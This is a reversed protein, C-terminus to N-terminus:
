QRAPGSGPRKQMIKADPLMEAVGGGMGPFQPQMDPRAWKIEMIPNHTSQLLVYHETTTSWVGDQRSGKDPDQRSGIPAGPGLATM